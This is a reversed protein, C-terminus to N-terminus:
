PCTAFFECGSQQETVVFETVSKMSLVLRLEKLSMGTKTRISEAIGRARSQCNAHVKNIRRIFALASQIAEFSAGAGAIGGGPPYYVTGDSMEVLTLAGAARLKKLGASSFRTPEKVDPCQCHRILDPWNSHVIEILSYTAFDKHTLLDVFHLGEDTVFAFLLEKTGGVLGMKEVGPAGLHFHQIGWDNLLDDSFNPDWQSRTRRTNLDEGALSEAQICLVAKMQADTLQKTSLEKSWHVSRSRPTITRAALEFYRRFVTTADENADVAFGRTLLEQVLQARVDEVFTSSDPITITHTKTSMTQM